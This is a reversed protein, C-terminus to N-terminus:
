AIVEYNTVKIRGGRGWMDVMIYIDRGWYNLGMFAIGMDRGSKAFSVTNKFPRLDITMSITDGAIAPSAYAIDDGNIVKTGSPVRYGVSNGRYGVDTRPLTSM